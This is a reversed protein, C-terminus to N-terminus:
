IMAFGLDSESHRLAFQHARLVASKWMVGDLRHWSAWDSVLKFQFVGEDM